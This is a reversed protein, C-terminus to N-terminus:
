GNILFKERIINNAENLIKKAGGFTILEVANDIDCWRFDVIEKGDIKVDGGMCKAIFYKVKKNIIGTDPNNFSYYEELMINEDRIYINDIGTEEFLERKATQIETEGNECHGKPFAWHGKAHKIILFLIKDKDQKYIVAGISTDKKM